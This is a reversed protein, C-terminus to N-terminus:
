FSYINEDENEEMLKNLFIGQIVSAFIMVFSLIIIYIWGFYFVAIPLLPIKIARNYLFCAILGLSLGKNKLDALLPYWMYIPGTSIIGGVVVYFWKKIGKKRLHKIVIQPTVFYNTLTMLVFVLIFVPIINLVLNYFFETSSFFLDKRFILFLIYIIVVMILFYWSGSLNLKLRM